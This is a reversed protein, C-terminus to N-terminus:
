RYLLCLGGGPPYSVAALQRAGRLEHGDEALIQIAEVLQAPVDKHAEGNKDYLVLWGGQPPFSVHKLQRKERALKELTETLDAPLDRAYYGSEDYLVVLGGSPSFAAWSLFVGRAFLSSLKLADRFRVGQSLPEEGSPLVIWSASDPAFAVCRVTRGQKERRVLAERTPPPVNQAFFGDALAGSSLFIATTAALTRVRM